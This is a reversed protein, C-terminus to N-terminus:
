PPEYDVNQLHEPVPTEPPLALLGTPSVLPKTTDLHHFFFAFRSQGVEREYSFLTGAQAHLARWEKECAWASSKTCFLEMIRAHNEKRIFDSLQFQPMNNPYRVKQDCNVVGAAGM